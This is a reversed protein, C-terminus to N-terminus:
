QLRPLAAPRRTSLAQSGPGAQRRAKRWPAKVRSEFRSSLRRAARPRRADAALRSAATSWASSRSSTRAAKMIGKSMEAKAINDLSAPIESMMAEFASTVLQKDLANMRDWRQLTDEVEKKAEMARAEAWPKKIGEFM